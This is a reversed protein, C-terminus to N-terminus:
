AQAVTPKTCTLGFERLVIGPRTNKVTSKRWGFVRHQALHVAVQPLGTLADGRRGAEIDLDLLEPIEPRGTEVRVEDGGHGIRGIRLAIRVLVDDATGTVVGNVRCVAKTGIVRFVV